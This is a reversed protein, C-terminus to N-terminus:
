PKLRESAETRARRRAAARQWDHWLRHTRLRPLREPVVEGEVPMVACVSLGVAAQVRWRLLRFDVRFILPGM